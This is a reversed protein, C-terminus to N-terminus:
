VMALGMKEYFLFGVTGTIALLIGYKVHIKAIVESDMYDMFTNEPKSDEINKVESKDCKLILMGLIIFCVGTIGLNFFLEM